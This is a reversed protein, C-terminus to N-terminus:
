DSRLIVYKKQSEWVNVDLIEKFENTDQTEEIIYISNVVTYDFNHDMLIKEM